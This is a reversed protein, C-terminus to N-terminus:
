PWRTCVDWLVPAVVPTLHRRRVHGGLSAALEARRAPDSLVGAALRALAPTDHVPVAVEPVGAARALHGFGGAHTGVVATGLAAAELVTLPFPDERAVTVHLDAAALHPRADGVPPLVRCTAALGAADVEGRLEGTASSGPEAGVWAAGLPVGAGSVTAVLDVFRDSGKRPGSAGAGVVL